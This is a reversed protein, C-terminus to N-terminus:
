PQDAPLSIPPLLTLGVGVSYTDFRSHEILLPRYVADLRVGLRPMVPVVLGLGLNLGPLAGGGLVLSLGGRALLTASGLPIGQMLSMDVMAFPFGEALASPATAITIENGLGGHKFGSLRLSVTTVSGGDAGPVGFQDV